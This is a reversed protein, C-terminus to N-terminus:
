FMAAAVSPLMAHRRAIVGPDSDYGGGVVGAIPVGARVCAGVVLRERSELGADSLALKGLRDGAHPDVGANYVVLDPSVAPLLRSLRAELISLYEDDGTGAPLAVDCDSRWKRQPFNQECHMSFTYADTNGDLIEATGDGQHVDLDIILARSISGEDFLVKVAVAVDNFVCYGSGYSSFAHHSGGATNFAAGRELAARVALLTGGVAARSRRVVGDDLPLGIRRISRADLTRNLVRDVYTGTHALRLYEASVPEPRLVQHAEVVGTELLHEFLKQFKMMPFRHGAPLPTVYDPHYVVSISM